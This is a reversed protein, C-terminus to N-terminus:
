KLLKILHAFKDNFADTWSFREFREYSFSHNKDLTHIQIIRDDCIVLLESKLQRAYSEGQKYNALIERNNKMHKKVECTIRATPRELEHYAIDIAFDPYVATERGAHTEFEASYNTIGMKELLAILLQYSVDKEKNINVKPMDPAFIVPIDEAEERQRIMEVLHNYEDNTLAFGNVGQFNKKLLNNQSFVPDAKLEKLTIPRKLRRENGIYTHAYYYFFPDCIGDTQARWIGTIACVPSTEYFVLLDGRWTEENAQWFIMDRKDETGRKKGGIFWAQVGSPIQKPEEDDLHHNPMFDYLFASLEAQSLGNAQRFSYLEDCLRLYYLYREEYKSRLPVQPLEIECVSFIRRLTKFDLPFLYPFFYDNYLSLVTSLVSISSVWFRKDGEKVIVTGDDEVLESCFFTFFEERCKDISEFTIKDDHIIRVLLSTFYEIFDKKDIVYDSCYKCFISMVDEPSEINFNDLAEQYAPTQKYTEWPKRPFAM